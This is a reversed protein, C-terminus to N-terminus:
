YQTQTHGEIRDANLTGSSIFAGASSRLEWTNSSGVAAHAIRFACCSHVVRTLSYASRAFICPWFIARSLAMQIYRQHACRESYIWISPLLGDCPTWMCETSIPEIGFGNRTDAEQEGPFHREGNHLHRHHSRPERRSLCICKFRRM